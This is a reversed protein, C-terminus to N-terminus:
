RAIFIAEQVKSRIGDFAAALDSGNRADFFLKEPDSACERLREVTSPKQGLDFAV